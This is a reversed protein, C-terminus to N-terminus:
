DKIPLTRLNSLEQEALQNRHRLRLIEQKLHLIKGTCALIGLLVGAVLTGLLAVSLPLEVQGLVYDLRVDRANYFSFVLGAAAILLLALFQILFAIRSM